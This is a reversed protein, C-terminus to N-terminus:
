LSGSGDGLIRPGEQVTDLATFSLDFVHDPEGTLLPVDRLVVDDGDTAGAPGGSVLAAALAFSFIAVFRASRV